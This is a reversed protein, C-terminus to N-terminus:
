QRNMWDRYALADLGAEDFGVVYREVTRPHTSTVRRSGGARRQRRDASAHCVDCLEGPVGVERKVCKWCAYTM